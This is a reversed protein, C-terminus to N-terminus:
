MKKSLTHSKSQQSSDLKAQKNFADQAKSIVADACIQVDQSAATAGLTKVQKANPIQFQVVSDKNTISESNSVVKSAQRSYQLYSLHKYTEKALESCDSMHKQIELWASTKENTYILHSDKQLTKGIFEFLRSLDKGHCSRVTSVDVHSLSMDLRLVSILQNNHQTKADLVVTLKNPEDAHRAALVNEDIEKALNDLLDITADHKALIHKLSANTLVIPKGALCDIGSSAGDLSLVFPHSVRAKPNLRKNLEQEGYQQSLPKLSGDNRLVDPSIKYIENLGM